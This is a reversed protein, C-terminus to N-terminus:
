WLGVGFRSDIFDRSCTSLVACGIWTGLRFHITPRLDEDAADRWLRGIEKLYARHPPNEFAIRGESMVLDPTLFSM